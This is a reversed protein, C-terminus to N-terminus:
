LTKLILDCVRKAGDFDYMDSIEEQISRRARKDFLLTHLAEVDLELSDPSFIGIAQENATAYQYNAIQNEVIAALGVIKQSALLDWL